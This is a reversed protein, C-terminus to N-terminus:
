AAAAPVMRWALARERSGTWQQEGQRVVVVSRNLGLLRALYRGFLRQPIGYLARRRNEKLPKLGLTQAVPADRRDYLEYYAGVQLLAVDGPFRGRVWAYQQRVNTLGKPLAYRPVLRYREEDSYFYAALGDVIVQPLRRGAIPFAIPTPAPSLASAIEGSSAVGDIHDSGNLQVQAQEAHPLSYSYQYRRASTTGSDPGDWSLGLRWSIALQLQRPASALHQRRCTMLQELEVRTIGVVQCEAMWLPMEPKLVNTANTASLPRSRHNIQYRIM